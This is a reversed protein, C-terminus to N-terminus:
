SKEKKFRANNIVVGVGLPLVIMSAYYFYVDLKYYETSNFMKVLFVYDFIVAMASWVLGIFLYDLLRTRHIKTLLVWITLAMAFPTIVWGILDAPVVFFLVIGLAYGIFWLITGWGLTAM